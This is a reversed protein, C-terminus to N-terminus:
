VLGRRLQAVGEWRGWRGVKVVKVATEWFHRGLGGLRSEGEDGLSSGYLFEINFTM